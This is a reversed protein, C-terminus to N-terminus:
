NENQHARMKSVKTGLLIFYNTPEFRIRTDKLICALYLKHEM